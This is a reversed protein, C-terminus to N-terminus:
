LNHSRTDIYTHIYIYFRTKYASRRHCVSTPDNSIATVYELDVDGSDDEDVFVVHKLLYM